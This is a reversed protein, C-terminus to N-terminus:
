TCLSRRPWERLRLVSNWFPCGYPTQIARASSYLRPHAAPQPFFRAMPDSKSFTDMNDLNHCELSMEVDATPESPPAQM